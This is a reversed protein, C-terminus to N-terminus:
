WLWRFVDIKMFSVLIKGCVDIMEIKVDNVFWRWLVVQSVYFWWFYDFCKRLDIVVQSMSFVHWFVLFWKRLWNEIWWFGNVFGNLGEAWEGFM